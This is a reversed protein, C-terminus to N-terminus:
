LRHDRGWFRWEITDNYVYGEVARQYFPTGPIPFSSGSHPRHKASQHAIAAVGQPGVVVLTKHGRGELMQLPVMGDRRKPLLPDPLDDVGASVLEIVGRREPGLLDLGPLIVQDKVALGITAQRPSWRVPFPGPM